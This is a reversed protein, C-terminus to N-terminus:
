DRRFASAIWKDIQVKTANVGPQLPSRVMEKRIQEMSGSVDRTELVHGDSIVLEFVTRYKWAPHFGMHVYLEQIFGSAALLNGTFAVPLDLAEYVRNFIGREQALSKVGNILPAEGDLNIQLKHLLFKNQVIQYECVFGRWCSTIRSFPHMGFTSPEFLGSGNVGVLSFRQDNLLLADPIQATV